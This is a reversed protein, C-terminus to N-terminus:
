TQYVGNKIINLKYFADEWYQNNPDHIVKQNRVNTLAWSLVKEPLPRGLFAYLEHLTKETKDTLSDHSLLFYQDGFHKKGEYHTQDYAFKWILLIREFDYIDSLHAYAPLSLIHQSFPYSSWSSKDSRRRFFSNENDLFRNKNKQNKGYLYSTAVAAPDRVIHIFKASSDISKLCGVKCYMRTFKIATNDSKQIIYKLYDKCYEPMDNEFELKPDRPAGYNLLDIDDLNNHSSFFEDRIRRIKKFFDESRVESGGGIAAKKAAAFPEYYCDIDPDEELIDFCITTGSRRMGQLFINM